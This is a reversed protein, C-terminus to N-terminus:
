HAAVSDPTLRATVASIMRHATEQNCHMYNDAIAIFKIGSSGDHGSYTPVHSLLHEAKKLLRYTTIGKSRHVTHQRGGESQRPPQRRGDPGRDDNDSSDLSEPPGLPENNRQRKSNDPAGQWWYQEKDNDQERNPYKSGQPTPSIGPTGTYSWPNRQPPSKMPIDNLSAVDHQPTPATNFMPGSPLGQHTTTFSAAADQAAKTQNQKNEAM